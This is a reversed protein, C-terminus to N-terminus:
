SQKHPEWQCADQLEGATIVNLLNHASRRVPVSRRESGRRRDM